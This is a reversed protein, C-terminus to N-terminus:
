PRGSAHRGSEEDGSSSGLALEPRGAAKWAEARLRGGEGEPSIAGKVLAQDLIVAARAPNQGLMMRALLLIPREETIMGEEYATDLAALAESHKGQRGYIAALQLWAAQDPFHRVLESATESARELDARQLHIATILRLPERAVGGSSEMAAEAVRVAEGERDTGAYAHALALLTSPDGGLPANLAIPELVSVAEVFRRSTVLVQGLNSSLHRRTALDLEIYGLARRYSEVAETLRRRHVFSIARVQEIAVREYVDLRGGELDELLRDVQAFRREGIWKEAEEIKRQFRPALWASTTRIEASRPGTSEVGSPFTRVGPDRSVELNQAESRLPAGGLALAFAVWPMLGVLVWPPTSGVWSFTLSMRFTSELLLRRM